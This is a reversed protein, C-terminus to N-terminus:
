HPDYCSSDEESDGQQPLPEQDDHEDDLPDPPSPIPVGPRHPVPHIASQINPYSINKKNNLNFGQVNYSCFYCNDSHNKPERLVM